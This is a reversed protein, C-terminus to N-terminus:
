KRSRQSQILKILADKTTAKSRGKINMRKAREKLEAVTMKAIHEEAEIINQPARLEKLRKVRERQQKQFERDRTITDSIIERTM